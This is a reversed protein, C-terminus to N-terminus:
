NNLLVVEFNCDLFFISKIRMEISSYFRGLQIESMYAYGFQNLIREEIYEETLTQNDCCPMDNITARFIDSLQLFPITSSLKIYSMTVYTYFLTYNYIYIDTLMKTTQESEGYQFSIPGSGLGIGSSSGKRYSENLEDYTSIRETKATTDNSQVCTM